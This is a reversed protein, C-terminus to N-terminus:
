APNHYGILTATIVSRTPVTNRRSVLSTSMTEPDPTSACALAQDPEFSSHSPPPRVPRGREVPGSTRVCDVMRHHGDCRGFSNVPMINRIPHAPVRRCFLPPIIMTAAKAKATTATASPMGVSIMAAIDARIHVKIPLFVSRKAREKTLEEPSSRFRFRRCNMGCAARSLSGPPRQSDTAGRLRSRSRCPENLTRM